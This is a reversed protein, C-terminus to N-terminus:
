FESMQKLGTRGQNLWYENEDSDNKEAVKEYNAELIHMAHALKIYTPLVEIERPTLEITKQYEELATKLNTESKKKNKEDFLINCAMVALEQIRPYYNSVAFDIIWLKNKKDKMVNTAIIDGHVIELCYLFMSSRSVYREPRYARCVCALRFDPSLHIVVEHEVSVVEKFVIM